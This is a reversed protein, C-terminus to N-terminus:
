DEIEKSPVGPENCEYPDKRDRCQTFFGKNELKECLRCVKRKM